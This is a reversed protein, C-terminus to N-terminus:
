RGAGTGGVEGVRMGGVLVQCAEGGEGECEGVVGEDVPAGIGAPAMNKGM